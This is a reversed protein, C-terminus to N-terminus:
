QKILNCGQQYGLECAKHFDSMAIERKNSGLYLLGRNYYAVAYAPDLAITRNFANLAEDLRGTKFLVIGLGHYADSCAPNLAIARNYDNMSENMQGRSFFINGRNNFAEFFFSNLAIAADFDKLAQDLLRKNVFLIGRSNYADYNSPNLAIATNYMEIAKDDRGKEAYAKGLYFYAEPNDPSGSVADAWLGVKDTWLANRKVAAASLVVVALFLILVATRKKRLANMKVPGTAQMFILTTVAVFIGVSPLYARYECFLMPIPIISSEVSLTIFFWFIGFGILRYYARTVPSEDRTEAASRYILYVGLIVMCLIFLFSSLVKLNFFSRYLPYNYDINQNVPFFLLRLYTVICSFQTFLYEGRHFVRAGYLAPDLGHTGSLGMLALPIICLTLLMPALYLFRQQLFNRRQSPSLNPPPTFFCFEYLTIVVPLTFANEKTKMALVASLLSIGYFIFGPVSSVRGRAGEGQPLPISNLRAGEGQPLPISNLRAGEGQPLPISNLRAGEGQPLPTPSPYDDIGRLRSKIYMVLSLLYFFAALSAFRQFVYTVAETQLPHVAFILSSFFAILSRSDSLPGHITFPSDHITFSKQEPKLESNVWEGNVDKEGKVEEGKVTKFFPTRFTLLILFYVLISNAIHVAINVIHYGTVSLGNIRYNLAFTLYGVYRTILGGYFLSFAKADSPNSFYHFDRVIPNNVIFYNEDWQFPANLTGGYVAVIILVLGSIHLLSNETWPRISVPSPPALAIKIKKNRNKKKM